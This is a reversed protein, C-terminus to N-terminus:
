QLLARRNQGQKCPLSNVGSMDDSDSCLPQIRCLRRAIYYSWEGAVRLYTEDVQWFANIRRLERRCREALNRYM